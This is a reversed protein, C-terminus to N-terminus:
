QCACLYLCMRAYRPPATSPLRLKSGSTGSSLHSPASHPRDGLFFTPSGPPATAGPGSNPDVLSIRINASNPYILVQIARPQPQSPGGSNADASRSMSVNQLTIRQTVHRGVPVAGFVLGKQDIHVHEDEDQGGRTGLGKWERESVYVSASPEHTGRDEQGPFCSAPMKLGFDSADTGAADEEAEDEEGLSDFTTHAAAQQSARYVPVEEGWPNKAPGKKLKLALPDMNGASFTISAGPSRSWEGGADGCAGSLNGDEEDDDEGIALFDTAAAAAAAAKYVPLEEGWPGKAGKIAVDLVAVKGGSGWGGASADPQGLWEEAWEDEDEEGVQVTVTADDTATTCAPFARLCAPMAPQTLTSFFLPVADFSANAAAQAAAKYVPVDEGWPSKAMPRNDAVRFM